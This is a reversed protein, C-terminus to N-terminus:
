RAGGATCPHRRGHVYDRRFRRRRSRPRPTSSGPVPTTARTARARGSRLQAQSSGAPHICNATRSQRYAFQKTPLDISLVPAWTPTTLAIVDGRQVPLTTQLPFQVVQRSVAPRPLDHEPSSRGSACSRPALPRLVTIALQTTGGYPPRPVQHRQARPAAPSSPRSASRSRSSGGRRRSPRRTLSATASRRSRPSAPRPHDHLEPSQHEAPM